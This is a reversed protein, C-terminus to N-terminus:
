IILARRPQYKEGGKRLACVESVHFCIYSRARHAEASRELIEVEGYKEHTKIEAM